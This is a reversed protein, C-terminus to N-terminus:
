DRCGSFASTSAHISAIVSLLSHRQPAAIDDDDGLTFKTARTGHHDHL